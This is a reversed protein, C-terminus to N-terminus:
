LMLKTCTDFQSVSYRVRQERLSIRGGIDNVHHIEYEFAARRWIGNRGCTIHVARARIVESGINAMQECLSFQRWREVSLAKHQKNM